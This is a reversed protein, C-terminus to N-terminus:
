SELSAAVDRRYFGDRLLNAFARNSIEFSIGKASSSLRVRKPLLTVAWLTNFKDLYM